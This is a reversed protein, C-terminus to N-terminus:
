GLIDNMNYLGASQKALFKAATVAGNAFVKKSLATHKFEIIEDNGAFIVTHEGPITGGRIAHIGLESPQRKCNLGHRGFTYDKKQTLGENVADALLLATGSPADVKKNHHKEIIEIDFGAELSAAVDKLAKALVNIGLSMNATKFVPFEASAEKITKLNEKSLGTTAIVIPTKTRRAYTFISDFASFHSFDIIVDAVKDVNALDQYVPFDASYDKADFGAVVECDADDAIIQQLVQGMAGSVGSLMIKLM